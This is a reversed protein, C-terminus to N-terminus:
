TTPLTLHTYSVPAIKDINNVNISGTIKNSGDQLIYNVCINEYIEIGNIEDYSYSTRAGLSYSLKADGLDCFKIVTKSNTWEDLKPTAEYILNLTRFKQSTVNGVSDKVWLYYDTDTKLNNIYTELNKTTENLIDSYNQPETNSTTVCYEKIGSKNDSINIKARAFSPTIENITPKINDINDIKITSTIKRGSSNEAVAYIYYITDIEESKITITNATSSSANAIAEAETKGYGAMTNYKYAGTYSINAIVDGTLFESKDNLTIKIDGLLVSIM